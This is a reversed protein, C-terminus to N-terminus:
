GKPGNTDSLRVTIREISSVFKGIKMGLKRAIYDRDADDIAGGLVRVHAPPLPGSRRDRTLKVPRPLSAPLAGRPDEPVTNSPPSLSLIDTTMMDRLRM